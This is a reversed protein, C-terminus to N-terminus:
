KKECDEDDHDLSCRQEFWRDLDKRNALLSGGSVKRVPLGADISWRKVTKPSVGLYDAIQKRGAFYQQMDEDEEDILGAQLCLREYKLLGAVIMRRCERSSKGSALHLQHLTFGHFKYGIILSQVLTELKCFQHGAEEWDRLEKPSTSRSLEFGVGVNSWATGVKEWRVAVPPYCSRCNAERTRFYWERLLSIAAPNITL